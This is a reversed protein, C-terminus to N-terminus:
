IWKPMSAWHGDEPEAQGIGALTPESEDIRVTPCAARTVVNARDVGYLLDLWPRHLFELTEPHRQCDCPVSETVQVPVRKPPLRFKSPVELYRLSLKHHHCQVTKWDSTAQVCQRTIHMMPYRLELAPEMSLWPDWESAQPLKGESILEKMYSVIESRSQQMLDSEDAIVNPGWHSAGSTAIAMPKGHERRHTQQDRLSQEKRRTREEQEKKWQDAGKVAAEDYQQKREQWSLRKTPEIGVAKDAVIRDAKGKRQRRRAAKSPQKPLGTDVVIPPGKPWYQPIVFHRDLEAM